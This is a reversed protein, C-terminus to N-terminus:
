VDDFQTFVFNSRGPKNLAIRCHPYIMEQQPECDLTPDLPGLTRVSETDSLTLM